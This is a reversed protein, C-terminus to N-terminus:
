QAQELWRITSNEPIKIICQPGFGWFNRLHMSLWNQSLGVDPPFYRSKKTVIRPLMQWLNTKATVPKDSKAQGQKDVIIETSLLGSAYHHATFCRLKDDALLPILLYREFSTPNFFWKQAPERMWGVLDVQNVMTIWTLNENYELMHYFFSIYMVCLVYICVCM